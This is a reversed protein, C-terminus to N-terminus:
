KNVDTDCGKAPCIRNIPQEGPFYIVAYDRSILSYLDEMNQRRTENSVTDTSIMARALRGREPLILSLSQLLDTKAMETERVKGRTSIKEERKRRVWENQYQIRALKM